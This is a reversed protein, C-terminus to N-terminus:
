KQGDQMHSVILVVKRDENINNYWCYVNRCCLDQVATPNKIKDFDQHLFGFTAYQDGYFDSIQLLDNCYLM